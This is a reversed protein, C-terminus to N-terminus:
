VSRSLVSADVLSVMPLEPVRVHCSVRAGDSNDVTLSMADKLRDIWNQRDTM